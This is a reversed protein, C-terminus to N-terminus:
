CVSGLMTGSQTMNSLQTGQLFRGITHHMCITFIFDAFHTSHYCLHCDFLAGARIGRSFTLSHRAPLLPVEAAAALWGVLWGQTPEALNPSKM